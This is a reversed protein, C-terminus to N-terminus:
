ALSRSAIASASYNEEGEHMNKLEIAKQEDHHLYLERTVWIKGEREADQHGLIEEESQQSGLRQAGGHTYPGGTRTGTGTNSRTGRYASAQGPGYKSNSPYDGRHSSFMARPFIRRLLPYMVPLNAGVVGVSTEVATWITGDTSADTAVRPLKHAPDGSLM